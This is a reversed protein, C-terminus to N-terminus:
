YKIVLFESAFYFISPWGFSSACLSAAVPNGGAGAMQNCTTFLSIATSREASPFWNALIANNAPLIFGQFAPYM